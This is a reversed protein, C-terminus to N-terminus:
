RARKSTAGFSQYTNRDIITLTTSSSFTGFEGSSSFEVVCENSSEGPSTTWKGATKQQEWRGKQNLFRRVSKFTGDANLEDVNDVKAKFAGFGAYGKTIWRGTLTGQCDTAASAIGASALFAALLPLLFRRM